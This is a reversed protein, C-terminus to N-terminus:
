NANRWLIDDKGDANFDGTGVPTWALDSVTTLAVQTKPSGALWLVNAGTTTNRWLIDGKGDGNFDGTGAVTWTLAVTPLLVKNASSAAKWIQDAGTTGNRWLIDAKGDGDFDAAAAVQWAQDAVPTLPLQMPALASRWVVNGGTSLNRWLVDSQGDGNFDGSFWVGRGLAAARFSAVIAMTQNLARANDEKDTEGCPLGGCLTIGPNSFVRYGVQGSRRLSMITYFNGATSSYGFSYPYAGFEEPDLLNGDANTDDTGAATERDHQLGMNHGLEHALYEERCTTSQSPFTTGDSDSVVSFGFQADDQTIGVQNAGLLWGVGCSGNEPQTYNRVLSVLDAGYRDRASVLPKLADPVAVATCSEGTDPTRLPSSNDASCSLGSLEFLTAQNSTNDAYNVQVAAVMRIRGAVQSDVYAQNALDVLYQLRTVAQSQGGLRTAFGNTYGLVVDVTATASPTAAQPALAQAAIARPQAAAVPRTAHGRPMPALADAQTPVPDAAAALPNPQLLWTRGGLTTVQLAGSSTPITGFVAKDGFTLMAEAGAPSGAPRGVWTWNGDPHQIRGTYQLRIPRGDPSAVVMGGEAIARLAHAESIQVPYATFTGRRLPASSAYALFSGRDPFAAIRRSAM